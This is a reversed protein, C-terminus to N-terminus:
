ALVEPARVQWDTKSKRGPSRKLGLTHAIVKISGTTTGYAEAVVESPVGHKYASSVAKQLKTRPTHPDESRPPKRQKKPKPLRESLPVGSVVILHPSKPRCAATSTPLVEVLKARASHKKLAHLVSTHDRGFIRGVDALSSQTHQYVLAMARHRAVVIRTERSKSLVEVKCVDVEVSALAVLFRWSPVALMNLPARDPGAYDGPQEVSPVVTLQAQAAPRVGLRRRVDAYHDTLRAIYNLDADDAAPITMLLSSM